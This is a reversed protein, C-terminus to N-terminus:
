PRPIGLQEAISAKLEPARQACLNLFRKAHILALIKEHAKIAVVMAQWEEDIQSELFDPPIMLPSTM